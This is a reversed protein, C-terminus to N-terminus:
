NKHVSGLVIGVCKGVAPLFTKIKKTKNKKM